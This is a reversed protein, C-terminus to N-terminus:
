VYGLMEVKDAFSRATELLAAVPSTLGQSRLFSVALVLRGQMRGQIPELASHVLSVKQSLAGLRNFL